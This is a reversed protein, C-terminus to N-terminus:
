FIARVGVMASFGTNMFQWPMEYKNNTINYLQTFMSVSKKENQYVVKSINANFLLGPTFYQRNELSSSDYFGDNYNIMPTFTIGFPANLSVGANAIIEPSFPVSAGDQDSDKPNYISTKMYTFNAFWDVNQSIYHQVEFEVGTSSTKGANVSMTQSPDQSVVNEIIADDVLLNFGRISMMINQTLRIDFGGDIGMGSEPRLDPNPLQGSNSTDGAPITGGISKLGPTMFSTGINAYVSIMDTANYKVGASYLLKEWDTTRKGPKDGDVLHINHKIYNFRLGGRLILRGFRLEEQLYLGTQMATSKNGYTKFGALPDSWNYYDAGQYDVGATLVHNEGHKATISIDAPIINQKVGNNSLLHDIVDFNSEQWSRDYNRYGVNTQMIINDSIELHYGANIIGYNHDFGRYIRGADGSHMTKNGFLTFKQRGDDSFWNAGGFVKTKRYEPNKKMNLWSDEIGYDTYDSMEYNLGAFIHTNNIIDQHYVQSNFTNYSGYSTSFATQTEDFKEKVILNVTGALPSQNGAFDQSLYNPYIVSAPGRQYEIREIAMLDLTMPDVFADVPLGNLMFTSYKPGIGGYTGWNADNRSLASVSIGPQMKLVEAINRNGTVIEAIEDSTIVDIKQTVNGKSQYIRSSTIVLEELRMTDTVEKASTAFANISVILTLSFTFLQKKM